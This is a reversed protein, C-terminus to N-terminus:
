GERAVRACRMTVRRGLVTGEHISPGRHSVVAVLRYSLGAGGGAAAPSAPSVPGASAPASPTPSSPRVSQSRARSGSPPSSTPPESALAATPTAALIDAPPAEWGDWAAAELSLAMARKMDDDEADDTATAPPARPTARHTEPAAVPVPPATSATPATRLSEAMAWAM